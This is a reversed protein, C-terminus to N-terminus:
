QCGQHREAFDALARAFPPLVLVESGDARTETKFVSLPEPPDGVYVVEPKPWAHSAPRSPDPLLARAGCVLCRVERGEVHLFQRM